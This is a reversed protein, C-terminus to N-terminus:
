GGGGGGGGGGGVWGGKHEGRLHGQNLDRPLDISAPTNQKQMKRAHPVGPHWPLQAAQEGVAVDDLSATLDAPVDASQPPHDAPTELFLSHELESAATPAAAEDVIPLNGGM